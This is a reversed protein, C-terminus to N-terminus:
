DPGKWIKEQLVSYGAKLLLEEMKDTEIPLNHKIRSRFYLVRASPINLVKWISPITIMKAFAQKTTM